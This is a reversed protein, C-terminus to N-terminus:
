YSLIVPVVVRVPYVLRVTHLILLLWHPRVAVASPSGFAVARARAAEARAGDAVSQVPGGEADVKKLKEGAFFALWRGDPSWFPFTAGDTGELRRVEGSTLDRVTLLSGDTGGAGFALRGGEPSVAVHGITVPFM